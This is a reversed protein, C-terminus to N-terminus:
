GPVGAKERRARNGSRPSPTAEAGAEPPEAAPDATAAVAPPVSRSTARADTASATKSAGSSRDDGMMRDGARMHDGAALRDGVPGPANAPVRGNAPAPEAPRERGPPLAAPLGGSVIEGTRKDVVAQEDHTVLYAARVSDVADDDEPLFPQRSVKTFSSTGRYLDHGLSRATIEPSIRVVHQDDRWERNKLRGHVVVPDGKRLSAKINDALPSRWCYVTYFSTDDDVWSRARSDYRQGNCALRFSAFTEGKKTEDLRPETAVNGVVTIMVESM